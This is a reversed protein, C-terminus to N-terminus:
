PAGKDQMAMEGARDIPSQYPSDVYTDVIKNYTAEWKKAIQKEIPKCQREVDRDYADNLREIAAIAARRGTYSVSADRQRELADYQPDYRKEIGEYCKALKTSDASTTNKSQKLCGPMRFQSAVKVPKPPTQTLNPKQLRVSNQLTVNAATIWLQGARDPSTVLFPESGAYVISGPVPNTWLSLWADTDCPNGWDAAMYTAVYLPLKARATSVVVYRLGNKTGAFTLKGSGTVQVEKTTCFGYTREWPGGQRGWVHFRQLNGTLNNGGTFAFDDLKENGTSTAYRLFAVYCKENDAKFAFSAAKDKDRLTGSTAVDAGLVNAIRGATDNEPGRWANELRYSTLTHAYYRSKNRDLADLEKVVGDLSALKADPIPDTSSSMHAQISKVLERAERDAAELRQKDTAGAPREGEGPRAKTPATGQPSATAAPEDDGTGVLKGNYRAEFKVVGCAALTLSLAALGLPRLPRRAAPTTKCAVHNM